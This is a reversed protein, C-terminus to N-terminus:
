KKRHAPSDAYYQAVWLPFVETFVKVMEPDFQTGSEKVIRKYAVDLSMAPRYSRDTTMADFADAIATIRALLPIQEGSLGEPYGKGDWREHHYRIVDISDGLGEIHQVADAGLTPHQKIIGYEEHTLSSSKTLISDSIHVKGIDHLLCAYYYSKLEEEGFLNLKRAFIVAYNAVRESHGRTYPDKLELAAIIGIVIGELQSSLSQRIAGLYTQFRHLLLFSVVSLCAVILIPLLVEPNQIVLGVILYKLLTGISVLWCFTKNIFIASFIVLFLEFINGSSYESGDAYIIIEGITNTFTYVIFYIYKILDPRNIKFLRWAVFLLLFRIVYEGFSVSNNEFGYRTDTIFLPLFYYYVLDYTVNIAYFLILFLKAAQREQNLLASGLFGKQM